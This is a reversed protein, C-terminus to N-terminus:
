DSNVRESNNLKSFDVKSVEIVAQTRSNVALKRLVESVHAKVTTAGVNLEFAIQKNLLGERLMHLVRLQQPTLSSLKQMLDAEVTSGQAEYPQYSEPTYVAGGIVESIASSLVDRGVSKPVFGAAGLQLSSQIIHNDELGSVVLVPLRPFQKRLRILGEFGHVGPMNLDLLALDFVQAAELIDVAEDLTRADVAVSDPYATIM